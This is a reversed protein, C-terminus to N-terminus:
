GWSLAKKFRRGLEALASAALPVPKFASYDPLSGVVLEMHQSWGIRVRFTVETDYEHFPVDPFVLPQVLRTERTIQVTFIRDNLLMEQLKIGIQHRAHQELRLAYGGREAMRNEVIYRYEYDQVM